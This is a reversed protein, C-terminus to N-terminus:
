WAALGRDIVLEHLIAVDLSRWAQCQRGAVAAMAAPDVLRVTRVADGCVVAMAHRGAPALVAEADSLDPEGDALRGWEFAAGLSETLKDLSFDGSLGAILRHTPLVLLGPDDRAVLAFMVFNTEHDADIRGSERLAKAYNMATSYRHHGDAIFVPEAALAAVIGAVPSEDDLVWLKETVGALEGRADPRREATAALVDGVCGGPDNHFGFIPSLQMNTCQTLKLRDEKPGAFTHEHPIVDEGLETARIGALLARRAHTRGAWMYTQEYVYLSPRPDQRLLGSSRWDNLTAAAAEYVAPPGLDKAPVHPLDVAVINSACTELLRRKDEADLIDYPPAIYPSVDGGTTSYRWGRFPRIDM